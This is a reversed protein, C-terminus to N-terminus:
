YTSLSLHSLHMSSADCHSRSSSYPAFYHSRSNLTPNCSTLVTFELFHHMVVVAHPPQGDQTEARLLKATLLSSETAHFERIKPMMESRVVIEPPGYVASASMDSVDLRRLNVSTTLSSIPFNAISSLEIQNITPLRMLHLFVSTLSSDVTNWDVPKSATIIFCNLSSITRLLNPLIPSLMKDHYDFYHHVSSFPTSQFDVPVKYTLKRIYKVVEPRRKLLKVFGKKSSARRTPNQEDRLDITAFLHKTSIQHFSHSVLALAKILNIDDSEGINDIIQAVIDYPLVSSMM